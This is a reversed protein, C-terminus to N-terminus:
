SMVTSTTKRDDLYAHYDATLITTNGGAKILDLIKSM